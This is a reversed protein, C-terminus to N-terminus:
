EAKPGFEKPVIVAEGAILAMLLIRHEVAWLWLKQEFPLEGKEVNKIAEKIEKFSKRGLNPISLLEDDSMDALEGLTWLKGTAKLANSTRVSFECDSIPIHYMAPIAM